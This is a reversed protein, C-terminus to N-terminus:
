HQLKKKMGTLEPILKEVSLTYSDPVIVIHRSGRVNRAALEKIVAEAAANITNAKLLLPM